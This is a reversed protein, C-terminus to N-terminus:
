RNRPVVVNRKADEAYAFTVLGNKIKGMVLMNPTMADKNTASFPKDYTAVVGYHVRSLNELNNKISPGTLKGGKVNFIAKALLYTADYAQAGAMPVEMKKLEYAQMYDRLFTGRRENTPEAIFSQSMLAGEAADGGGKVFSPFSLPWAGVMPVNWGMAQKGRAITANEPGVTYSFVVSANAARAASLEETLDKVGLPFRGVYVPELGHQQLAKKVDLLGAEGYGTSDALVAVRTLGRKLLDSVIFPAQIADPPSTRFIFSEGPPFTATIPTGTACPVILPVKADEFEKISKLAVGTNCFGIAAVVGEKVLEKSGKLGVEPTGQDDKVILEIRRGLYGGYRNIEAVALKAGNAMPIGFDSSPGTMPGILGIKVSAVQDGPASLPQSYAATCVASAALWAAASLTLQKM